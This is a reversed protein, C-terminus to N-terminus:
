EGGKDDELKALMELLQKEEGESLESDRALTSILMSVSGDFVRSLFSRAESRKCDAEEVAATYRFNNGVSRDVSVFGKDVLRKLLTKITSYSWGSDALSEVISSLSTGPARWLIQMVKWESDSIGQERM